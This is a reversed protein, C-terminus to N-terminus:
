SIWLRTLIPQHDSGPSPLTETSFIYIEDSILVHDLPFYIFPVEFGFGPVRWTPLIGHGLRTNRIGTKEIQKYMSSWMTVNLDGAVILHSDTGFKELYSTLGDLYRNREEFEHFPNAPHPAVLHVLEDEISLNMVAAPRWTGMDIMKANSIPYRSLILVGDREEHQHSFSYIYDSSFRNLLDKAPQTGVERLVVIDADAEDVLTAVEAVGVQPMRIKDVNYVLITTTYIKGKTEPIYYPLIEGGNLIICLLLLLLSDHQKFLLGAAVLPIAVWLYFPRFSVAFEALAFWRAFYGSLTLLLLTSCLGWWFITLLKKLM